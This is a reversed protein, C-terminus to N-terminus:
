FLPHPVLALYAKYGGVFFAVFSGLALLISVINFFTGFFAWVKGTREQIVEELYQGYSFQSLYRVGMAFGAAGTGLVFIMLALGAKDMQASISFDKAKILMNGCFALLTAAAGGNIVMAAKLASLGAEIISKFMELQHSSNIKAVEIKNEFHKQAAEEATKRAGATQVVVTQMEVLYKDLADLPVSQTNGTRMGAIVNRFDKIFEEATM